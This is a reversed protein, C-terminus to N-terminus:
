TIDEMNRRKFKPCQECKGDSNRFERNDKCIELTKNTLILFITVVVLLVSIAACVNRKAPTNLLQLCM